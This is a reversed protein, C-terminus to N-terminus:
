MDFNVSVLYNMSSAIKKLVFFYECLCLTDENLACHKHWKCQIILHNVNSPPQVSNECTKAQFLSFPSRSFFHPGLIQFLDGHPGTDGFPSGRPLLAGQGLKLREWAGGPTETKKPPRHLAPASHQLGQPPPYRPMANASNLLLMAPLREQPLARDSRFLSM